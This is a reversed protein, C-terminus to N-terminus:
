NVRFHYRFSRGTSIIMNVLQHIRLKHLTTKIQCHTLHIEIFVNDTESKMSYATTTARMFSMNEFEM